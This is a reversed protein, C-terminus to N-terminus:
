AADSLFREIEEIAQEQHAKPEQYKSPLHVYRAGGMAGAIEEAIIAPHLPDFDNGIVLSPVDCHGLNDMSRLPQDEVMVSYVGATEIAQTRWVAGMISAACRPRDTLNMSYLPDQKLKAEAFIQDGGALWEGIDSIIDLQPRAPRALWAPRVLLLARVDVSGSLALHLAIGAGMSIGGVVISSIGLAEILYVAADAYADFSVQEKLSIHDSLLSDGHGPMDLTIVQFGTLNKLFGKSQQRDAGLGHMFLLATGSGSVDYHLQSGNYDILAM